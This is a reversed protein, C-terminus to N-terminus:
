IKDFAKEGGTLIIVYKTIMKNTYNIVNVSMCINFYEKMGPIFEVQGFYQQM